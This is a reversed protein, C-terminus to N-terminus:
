DDTKCTKNAPMNQDTSLISYICFRFSPLNKRAHQRHFINKFLQKGRSLITNSNTNLIHRRSQDNQVSAQVIMQLKHQHIFRYSVMFVSSLPAKESTPCLCTQVICASVLGHVNCCSSHFAGQCTTQCCLVLFVPLQANVVDAFAM